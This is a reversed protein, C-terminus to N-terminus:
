SDNETKTEDTCCKKIASYIEFQSAVSVFHLGQMCMLYSLIALKFSDRSQASFRGETCEVYIEHKYITQQKNQDM